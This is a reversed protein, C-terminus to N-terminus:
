DKVRRPGRLPRPPLQEEIYRCAAASLVEDGCSDCKHVPVNEVVYNQGEVTKDFKQYEVRLTGDCDFCPIDQLHKM